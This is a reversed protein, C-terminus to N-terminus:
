SFTEEYDGGLLKNVCKVAMDMGFGRGLAFRILKTKKEYDNKAKVLRAKVSLIHLLQEEFEDGSLEELLPEYIASSINKRRLEFSIKTKGWKNFKMKDNIFSKAFRADDLFREKKLRNIIRDVIDAELEWAALKNRVDFESRETRSCYAAIRNLAQSETMKKKM